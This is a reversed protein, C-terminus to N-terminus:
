YRCRRGHEEGGPAVCLGPGRPEAADLTPQPWRSLGSRLVTEGRLIERLSRLWERGNLLLLPLLLAELYLDIEIRSAASAVGAGDAINCCNAAAVEFIFVSLIQISITGVKRFAVNFLQQIM